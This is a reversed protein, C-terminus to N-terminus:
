LVFFKSTVPTEGEKCCENLWEEPMDKKAVHTIGIKNAYMEYTTKSGKSIKQNPNQFIIRLDIDPHSALVQKMKQRDTSTWRGKKEIYMTNGSKKTFIFDPTYKSNKQPVIYQLTEKEYNVPYKAEKIQDAVKLELGSRYGYKYAAQRQKNNSHWHNKM